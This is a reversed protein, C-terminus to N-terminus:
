FGEKQSGLTNQISIFITKAVVMLRDRISGQCEYFSNLKMLASGILVATPKIFKLVVNRTLTRLVTNHRVSILKLIASSM